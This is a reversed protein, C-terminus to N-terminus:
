KLSGVRQPIVRTGESISAISSHGVNVVNPVFCKRGQDLWIQYMRMDGMASFSTLRVTIVWYSEMLVAVNADAAPEQTRDSEGFRCKGTYDFGWLLLQPYVTFRTWQCLANQTIPRHFLCHRITTIWEVAPRM